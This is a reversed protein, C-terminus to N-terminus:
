IWEREQEDDYDTVAQKDSIRANTCYIGYRQDSIGKSCAPVRDHPVDIVCNKMNILQYIASSIIYAM